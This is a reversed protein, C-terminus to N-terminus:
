FWARCEIGNSPQMHADGQTHTHMGTYTKSSLRRAVSAFHTRQRHILKWLLRRWVALCAPLCAPLCRPSHVGSQEHSRLTPVPGTGLDPYPSCAPMGVPVSLPANSHHYSNQHSSPPRPPQCHANTHPRFDFAANVTIISSSQRDSAGETQKAGTGRGGDSNQLM